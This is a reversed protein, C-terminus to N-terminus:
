ESEILYRNYATLTLFAPFDEGLAVERFLEVADSYRDSPHRAVEGLVRDITREISGRTIPTGDETTQGQNVWQWV